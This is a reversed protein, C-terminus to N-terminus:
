FWATSGSPIAMPLQHTGPVMKADSQFPNIQQLPVSSPMGRSFGYDRCTINDFDPLNDMTAIYPVTNKGVAPESCELGSHFMKKTTSVQQPGYSAMRPLSDCTGIYPVDDAGRPCLTDDDDDDDDDSHIDYQVYGQHEYTPFVTAEEETTKVTRSIVMLKEVLTFFFARFEEKTADRPLGPFKTCISKLNWLEQPQLHDFRTAITAALAETGRCGASATFIFSRLLLLMESAQLNPLRRLVEDSTRKMIIDKGNVPLMAFASRINALSQVSFMHLRTETWPVVVDFFYSVAVPLDAEGEMHGISPMIDKCLKGQGFTKAAAIAVSAVEQPKFAELTVTCMPLMTVVLNATIPHQPQNRAYAWMINAMHQPHLVMKQMVMAAKKFLAEHHFNNSAFGWLTNSLEQAKFAELQSVAANGITAFLVNDCHNATSFAWTINALEQPNARNLLECMRCALSNFLRTHHQRASAYSWAITALGRINFRLVISIVYEASASFFQNIKAGETGVKTIAWILSSLELPKFFCMSQVALDAAVEIVDNDAVQLTALSWIINSLSQPLSASVPTIQLTSLIGRRLQNVTPHEVLGQLDKCFMSLRALRHVSTSMNVLNMQPMFAGVMLLLQQTSGAEAAAMIQTNIWANIGHAEIASSQQLAASSNMPVSAHGFGQSGRSGAGGRQRGNRGRRNSAKGGVVQPCMMPHDWLEVDPHLEM